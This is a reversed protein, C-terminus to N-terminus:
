RLPSPLIALAMRYKSVTRRAIHIGKENLRDVIQRDTLPKGEGEILEKLMDKVKLSPTFFHAYPVIDGNPLMVYKSATARSVTSENLGIQSAVDARSLPKLYRVGDVLFEHQSAVIAATVHQLTWNRRSLNSVFLRARTLYAHVHRREADTLRAGDGRLEAAMTIYMPNIHVNFRKSEVVEVDFENEPTRSIIVDAMLYSARTDRDSANVCSFGQAPHPNLKNKIFGWAACVVQQPIKLERAILAFKHDGLETLYRSVIESAYPQTLGQQALREIQLLLCERLNRTGIGVPEQAHLVAIVQRVRDEAVDLHHAVESPKIPLYGKDNLSGVLYEAIAMDETPLEAGIDLLLRQALSQESVMHTFQDFDDDESLRQREETPDDNAYAGGASHVDSAQKQSQICRPCISGLMESGCVRCTDVEVRELAPNADLETAVSQQLEQSSQQLIHNAAILRWSVRTTQIETYDQEQTQQLELQMVTRESAVGTSSVDIRRESRGGGVVKGVFLV